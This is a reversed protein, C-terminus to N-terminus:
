DGLEHGLAKSFGARCTECLKGGKADHEELSAPYARACMPDTCRPVGLMFGVSSLMQKHVRTVLRERRPTEGTFAAAFRHYSVVGFNGNVQASGFMYNSGDMYIDQPLLAVTLMRPGPRPPASLLLNTILRGALWQAERTRAHEILKRASEGAERGGTKLAYNEALDIIQQDTATAGDHIDRSAAYVQFGFNGWPLRERWWQALKGIGDRDPQAPVFDRRDVCVDVRLLVKLRGGAEHLLWQQTDPAGVLCIRAKSDGDPPPTTAQAFAPLKAYADVGLFAASTNILEDTEAQKLVIQYAAAAEKAREERGERAATACLNAYRFRFHVQLPAIVTLRRFYETAREMDEAALLAEAAALANDIGRSASTNDGQQVLAWVADARALLEDLSPAPKPAANGTEAKAPPTDTAEESALEAGFDHIVTFPCGATLAFGACLFLVIWIKKM